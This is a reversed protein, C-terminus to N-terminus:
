EERWGSPTTGMNRKFIASFHSQDAFGCQLAIEALPMRSNRLLECARQTRLQRIYTGITVGRRNKFERCLYVPHIGATAAIEALRLNDVFRDQLLQQVTKLWEPESKTTRHHRETAALLECLIGEIVVPSLDDLLRFERYLRQALDGVLPSEIQGARNYLAASEPICPFSKPDIEVTLYRSDRQFEISHNEGAPLLRVTGPECLESRRGLAERYQGSVVFTLNMKPHSHQLLLTGRGSACELMVFRGMVRHRIVPESISRNPHM